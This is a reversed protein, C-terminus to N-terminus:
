NNNMLKKHNQQCHCSIHLWVPHNRFSSPHDQSVSEMAPREMETVPHESVMETVPRESASATVLHESGTAMVPHESGTAMVSGMASGPVPLYASELAKEPRELEPALGPRELEM